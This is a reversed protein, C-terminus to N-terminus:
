VVGLLRCEVDEEDFRNVDELTPLEDILRERRRRGGSEVDNDVLDGFLKWSSSDSGIVTTQKVRTFM